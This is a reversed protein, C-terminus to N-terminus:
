AVVIVYVLNEVVCVCVLVEWYMKGIIEIFVFFLVIIDVDRMVCFLEFFCLDYCVVFGICGFLSDVM